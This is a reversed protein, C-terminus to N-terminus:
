RPSLGRSMNTLINGSLNLPSSAKGASLFAPQATPKGDQERNGSELNTMIAAGVIAGDWGHRAAGEFGSGFAGKRGWVANIQHETM